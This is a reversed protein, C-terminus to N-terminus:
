IEIPECLYGDELRMLPSVCIGLTCTLQWVCIGMKLDWQLECRYGVEFKTPNVGIDTEINDPECLYECKGIKDLKLGNSVM